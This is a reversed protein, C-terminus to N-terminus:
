IQIDLMIKFIIAFIAAKYINRITLSTFENIDKKTNLYFIRVKRKNIM